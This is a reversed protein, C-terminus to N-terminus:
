GVAFHSPSACSNADIVPLPISNPASPCCRASQRQSGNMESKREFVLARMQPWNPRCEGRVVVQQPELEKLEIKLRM